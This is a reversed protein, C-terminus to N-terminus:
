AAVQRFTDLLAFLETVTLSRHGHEVKAVTTRDWRCGRQTMEVALEAQSMSRTLRERKIQALVAETKEAANV